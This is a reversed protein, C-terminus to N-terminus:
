NKAKRGPGTDHYRAGWVGEDRRRQDGCQRVVPCPKCYTNMVHGITKKDHLADPFFIDPDPADRCLALDRWTGDAPARNPMSPDPSFVRHEPDVAATPVDGFPNDEMFRRIRRWASSSIGFSAGMVPDSVSETLQYELATRAVRNVKHRCVSCLQVHGARPEAEKDCWKCRCPGRTKGM